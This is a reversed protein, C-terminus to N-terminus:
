LTAICVSKMVVLTNLLKCVCVYVCLYILHHSICEIFLIMSYIFQMYLKSVVNQAVIFTLYNYNKLVSICYKKFSLKLLNISKLTINYCTSFLFSNRHTAYAFLLIQIERSFELLYTFTDNRRVINVCNLESNQLNLM